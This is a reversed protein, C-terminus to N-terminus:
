KNFIGNKKINNANNYIYIYIYIYLLPNFM